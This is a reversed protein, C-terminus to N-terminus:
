AFTVLCAHQWLGYGVNRWTDVGFLWEDHKFEHESGEAIASMKPETEQQRILPKVRGDTRFVAIKTTWTLRPNVVVEISFGQKKLTDIVNNTGMIGMQAYVADMADGMMSMPVMVVFSKAGSNMPQGRDDKFGLIAQIAKRIAWAMVTPGPATTSGEYDSPIPVDSAVTVTLDNSQTGSDGETHDTDFFYQSDYCVTSEANIILTTLLNAWHEVARDALDGTRIKLQSTKDRRADKVLVNLTAEYHKNEITIGSVQFGQADRGGVWERLAPAMGLWKYTESDQDSQFLNSIKDAWMDATATDLAEYYFGQIARSSLEAVSM